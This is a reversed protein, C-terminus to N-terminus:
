DASGLRMRQLKQCVGGPDHSALVDDADDFVPGGGVVQEVCVVADGRKGSVGGAECFVVAVRGQDKAGLMSPNRTELGTAIPGVGSLWVVRDGVLGVVGFCDGSRVGSNEHGILALPSITEAPPGSRDLRPRVRGASIKRRMHGSETEGNTTGTVIM